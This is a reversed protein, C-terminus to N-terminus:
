CPHVEEYQIQKEACLGSKIHEMSVTEIDHRQFLDRLGLVDFFVQWYDSQALFHKSLGLREAARRSNGLKHEVLGLFLNALPHASTMRDAVDRLFVQMKNLKDSNSQDLIKEFNVKYDTILWLDNLEDRSPVYDANGTFLFQESSTRTESEIARRSEAHRVNYGYGVFRLLSDISQGRGSPSGDIAGENVMTDYVETSPLPTLLSVTYWDLDMQRAIRVTDHIQGLTEQPFGIILFGRAFVQPHRKMIEGVALCDELTSPKRMQRLISPNGSEIGFLMGVCGSEVAADILEPCSAVASTIVGNSADWTMNLKRKTIEQFLRMARKSDYFLDDDLWTIHQIGYRAQLDEIEDVVSAVSRCRVRKGNFKWVTCFACRGRCGRNSLVVSGRIDPPLWYRFAGVEGAARYRGIPLEDYDPCVNIHPERPVRKDKVCVIQGQICVAVQSLEHTGIRGNVVDLLDCFSLDGDHLSVLDISESERLVLEPVVTVHVGGAVVPLRCDCQKVYQAVQMLMAQTMTFTCSIGVVDPQFADLTEHLRQQWCRRIEEASDLPTHASQVADLVDMNLDLLKVVYGRKGLHTCLVGLGYPPYNYYRRHHALATSFESEAVSLPKILLVRRCPIVRGFIDCLRRAVQM